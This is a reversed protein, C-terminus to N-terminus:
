AYYVFEQNVHHSSTFHLKAKDFMTLMGLQFKQGSIRFTRPIDKFDEPGTLSGTNKLWSIFLPIKEDQIKMSGHTTKEKCSVNDITFYKVPSTTLKIEAELIEMPKTIAKTITCEDDFPSKL